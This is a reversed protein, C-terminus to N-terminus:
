FSITTGRASGSGEHRELSHLGPLGDIEGLIEVRPRSMLKIFRLLALVVAFFIANVAGVAVVGLTALMSLFAETRDIRYFLLVSRIDILSLGAVVLVAGLAAIPVFQLPATFFLLVLAVAVATVLGVAHTRGGVADSMATSLRCRQHCLGSRQPFDLLSPM